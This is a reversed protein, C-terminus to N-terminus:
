SCIMMEILFHFCTTRHLLWELNSHNEKHIWPGIYHTRERCSFFFHSQYRREEKSAVQTSNIRWPRLLSPSLPAPPHPAPPPDEHSHQLPGAERPMLAPTWRLRQSYTCRNRLSEWQSCEARRRHPWNLKKWNQSGRGWDKHELATSTPRLHDEQSSHLNDEHWSVGESRDRCEYTKQGLWLGCM